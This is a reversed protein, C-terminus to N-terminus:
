GTLTSRSATAQACLLEADPVRRRVARRGSGERVARAAPRGSARARAWFEGSAPSQWCARQIPRNGDSHAVDINIGHAHLLRAIEARGQFGAGHPPTYGDKEPITPDAGAQLLFAVAHSKGSLVANMLPTQGGPGRRNLESPDEDLAEQLLEASDMQVASFIDGAAAVALLLVAAFRHM